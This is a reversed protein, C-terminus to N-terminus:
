NNLFEELQEKTNNKKGYKKHFEEHEEKTLTIGNEISTRLEPHSSFNLIHHANIKGELGSKQSRYGDRAFVADRWLKLEISNRITANIPTTGGKWNPNNEGTIHPNKKGLWYKVPTTLMRNKMKEKTEESCKHGIHGLRNKEIREESHKKGLHSKKMKEIEEFTHTKGLWIQNGMMRKSMSKGMNKRAKDTRIYIGSPM